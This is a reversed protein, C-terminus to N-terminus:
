MTGLFRLLALAVHIQGAENLHGGDNTYGNYLLYYEKGNATYKERSGNPLTSEITAIDFLSNNASYKLRLRENFEHRKKNEEVGSVYRGLIKKIWPKIGTQLTTLPASIALFKTNPYRESLSTLTDTYKTFLADIDTNKHFDIYCFKLFAIDVKEGMGQNMLSNFDALKSEPHQNKGINTHILMPNNIKNADRTELLTIKKNCKEALLELGNLINSGVSQHGFF